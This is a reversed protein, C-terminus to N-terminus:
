TRSEWLGELARDHVYLLEAVKVMQQRLESIERRLEEVEQTDNQKPYPSLLTGLGGKREPTSPLADEIARLREELQAMPSVDAEDEFPVFTPEEWQVICGGGGLLEQLEAESGYVLVDIIGKERYDVGNEPVMVDDFRELFPCLYRVFGLVDLRPFQDLLGVNVTNLQSCLTLFRLSILDAIANESANLRELGEPANKEMFNLDVLENSSIDLGILKRPLPSNVDRIKNRSARLDELFPMGTCFDISTLRNGSVDLERLSRLASLSSLDSFKNNSLNLYRLAAFARVDPLTKLLNDSGDLTVVVGPNAVSPFSTLGQGACSVRDSGSSRGASSRRASM